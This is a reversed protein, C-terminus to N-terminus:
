VDSKLSEKLPIETRFLFRRPVGHAPLRDRAWSSLHQELVPGGEAGSRPVVTAQVVAGVLPARRASVQAWAVDPHAQLVERVAAASVKSGGVNIEDTDVRGTILIRGARREVRDGTRVPGSLGTGHHPSTIVLEEGGGEAAPVVDLVPRGPRVRGLWEEPFGARGDHVVISAGVESSAYIWSVRATPFVALLQDLIAQDVPEGGLTVQQLPVQALADSQSMLTQRWFTPTGSAATVEQEAAVQAWGDVRAPDLLVLDQGPLSLGLTIVQWWAYSGPSYPCLWRRPPLDGAVTSLSALTHGIRKPRGTSGSTLLWLRGSEGDRPRTPSAEEEGRIAFGDARLEARMGPDLRERGVVLLEARNLAHQWVWALADESDAVAAATPEDGRVVPPLDRWRRTSGDAGILLNDAGATTTAARSM